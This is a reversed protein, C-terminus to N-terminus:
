HGNACKGHESRWFNLFILPVRFTARTTALRAYIRFCNNFERAYKCTKNAHRMRMRMYNGIVRIDGLNKFNREKGHKQKGEAARMERAFAKECCPLRKCGANSVWVWKRTRGRWGCVTSPAVYVPPEGTPSTTSHAFRKSGEGVTMWISMLSGARSPARQLFPHVVSRHCSNFSATGSNLARRRIAAGLVTSERRPDHLLM